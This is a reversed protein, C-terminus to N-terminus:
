KPIISIGGNRELVAYKIQDVREVGMLMRAEELIDDEGVRAKMMRDKLMQGNEVLVLPADNLLKDIKTSRVALLSFLVDLGLLTIVLMFANTMSNDSEVMAQQIAEAIILLLVADFTTIQALSRKGTIRFVLLLVLYVVAGRVISEM